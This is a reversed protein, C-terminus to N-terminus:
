SFKKDLRHDGTLFWWKDGCKTTDDEWKRFILAYITQLVRLFAKVSPNIILFFNRSREVFIKVLVKATTLEFQTDRNTALTFRLM